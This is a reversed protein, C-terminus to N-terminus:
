GLPANGSELLLSVKSWGKRRRGGVFLGSLMLLGSLTPEPIPTISLSSISGTRTTPTMFPYGSASTFVGAPALFSSLDWDLASGPLSNPSPIAGSPLMASFFVAPQLPDWLLVPDPNQQFAMTLVWDSPRQRLEIHCFNGVALNANGSVGLLAECPINWGITDPTVPAGVLRGSYTISITFENPWVEGTQTEWSGSLNVTAASSCAATFSFVLLSLIFKMSSIQYTSAPYLEYCGMKGLLRRHMPMRAIM